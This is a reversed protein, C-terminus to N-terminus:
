DSVVQALLQLKEGLERYLATATRDSLWPVRLALYIQGQEIDLVYPETDYM